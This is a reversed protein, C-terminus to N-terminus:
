NDGRTANSTPITSSDSSNPTRLYGRRLFSRSKQLTCPRGVLVVFIQALILWNVHIQARHMHACADSSYDVLISLGTLVLVKSYM